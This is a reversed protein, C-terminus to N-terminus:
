GGGSGGLLFILGALGALAILIIKFYKDISTSEAQAEQLLVEYFFRPNLLPEDSKVGIPFADDEWFIWKKMGTAPDIYAKSPDLYLEVNEHMVTGGDRFSATEALVYGSKNLVAKHGKPKLIYEVSTGNKHLIEVKVYGKKALKKLRSVRLLYKIGMVLFPLLFVVVAGLVIALMKYTEYERLLNSAVAPM